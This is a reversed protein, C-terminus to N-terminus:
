LRLFGIGAVLRGCGDNQANTSRVPSSAAWSNGCPASYRADGARTLGEEAAEEGSFMGSAAPCLVPRGDERQLSGRLGDIGLGCCHLEPQLRERRRQSTPPLQM